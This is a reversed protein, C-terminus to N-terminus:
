LELSDICLAHPYFTSSALVAWFSKIKKNKKKDEQCHAPGMAELRIFEQDAKGEM